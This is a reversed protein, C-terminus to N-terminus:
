KKGKKKMDDCPIRQGYMYDKDRASCHVVIRKKDTEDLTCFQCKSCESTNITNYKM